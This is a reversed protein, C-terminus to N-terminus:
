WEAEDHSRKLAVQIRVGDVSRKDCDITLCDVVVDDVLAHWVTLLLVFVQQLQRLVKGSALKTEEDDVGDKVQEAAVVSTSTLETFSLLLKALEKALKGLEGGLEVNSNEHRILDLGIRPCASEEGTGIAALRDSTM